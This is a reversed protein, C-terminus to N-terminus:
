RAAEALQARKTDRIIGRALPRGRDDVSTYVPDKLAEDISIFRVGLSKYWKLMDSLNDSAFQNARLSLIHKADRGIRNRAAERTRTTSDLLLGKFHEKILTACAGDDRALAACYIQNFEGTRADITAPVEADNVKKLYAKIEDRRQPNRSAKMGPFRFYRNTQHFRSLFPALMEDNRAIDFIVESTPRKRIKHRSYTLSGILNGSDLWKEVNPPDLLRGSIFSVTPPLHSERLAAIIRQFNEASNENECWSDEGEDPDGSSRLMGNITIAIEMGELPRADPAVEQRRERPKMLRGIRPITSLDDLCRGIGSKPPEPETKKNCSASVFLLSVVVIPIAIRAASGSFISV